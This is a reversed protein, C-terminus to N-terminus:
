TPNHGPEDRTESVMHAKNGVTQINGNPVIHLTGDSARLSTTRLSITEVKGTVIGGPANIDVLDGVGFQDEFLIFFGSLFDKVLSQAGFGLAVGAIGAGAVLPGLSIDFEGLILLTAVVWVATRLMYSLAQTLTAIRRLDAALTQGSAAELKRHMRRVTLRSLLLLLLAAAFIVAIRVGSSLWWDRSFIEM